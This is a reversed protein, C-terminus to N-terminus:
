VHSPEEGLIVAPTAAERRCRRHLQKAFREASDICAREYFCIFGDPRGLEGSRALNVCACDHQCSRAAKCGSCRRAAADAERKQMRLKDQDLGDWVNGVRLGPRDDNHIMRECGYLRGAASVALKSHGFGCPWAGAPDMSACVKEDLFSISMDEFHEAYYGAAALMQERLARRAALPWRPADYDPTVHVDKVGLRRLYDLNEVLAGATAPTVTLAVRLDDFYRQAVRLGSLVRHHSPRDGPLVRCQNHSAPAGDLSVALEFAHDALWAAREETLLTGNTTAAFRMPWGRRASQREAVEVIRRMMEFQILPEGGFFAVVLEPHRAGIEHALELARHATGFSMNGRGAQGAYCYTCRMNCHHTLHLVLEFPRTSM